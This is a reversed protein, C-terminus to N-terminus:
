CGRIVRSFLFLLKGCQNLCFLLLLDAFDVYFFGQVLKLYAANLSGPPRHATGHAFRSQRWTYAVQSLAPNGDIPILALDRDHTHTTATAGTCRGQTATAYPIARCDSRM